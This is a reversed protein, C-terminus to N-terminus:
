KIKLNKGPKIKHKNNIGNLSCLKKVSVNHKKAITSLNDGKKVKYVKASVAHKAASAKKVNKSAVAKTEPASEESFADTEEDEEATTNNIIASPGGTVPANSALLSYEEGRDKPMYDRAKGFTQGDIMITNSALQDSGFDIIQKPNFPRGQFRTEFHLHNGTSRGTSGGLGIVDGAKVPQDVEVNRESLHGYLTEIGNFHRIVVCNGYGAYYRSMRVVGDFAAHVPDGKDLKLDVGAHLRSRTVYHYRKKKGKNRVKVRSSRWGYPSLFEGIVPMVFKSSDSILLPLRVNEAYGDEPELTRVHLTDWTNYYKNLVETRLIHPLVSKSPAAKGEMVELETEDMGGIPAAPKIPTSNQGSLLLPSITTILLLLLYSLTTKKM